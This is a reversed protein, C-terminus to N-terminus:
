THVGSITFQVSYIMYERELLWDAMELGTPLLMSLPARAGRPGGGREEEREKM